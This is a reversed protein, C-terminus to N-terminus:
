RELVCSSGACRVECGYHRDCVTKPLAKRSAYLTIRPTGSDCSHEYQRGENYAHYSSIDTVVLGVNRLMKRASLIRALDRPMEEVSGSTLSVSASYLPFDEPVSGILAEFASRGFPTPETSSDGFTVCAALPINTSPPGIADGQAGNIFLALLLAFVAQLSSM